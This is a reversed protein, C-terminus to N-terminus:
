PGYVLAPPGVPLIDRRWVFWAHNASPSSTGDFWMIRRTLVIKVTLFDNDGFLHRRSHASDFDVPLLLALSHGMASLGRKIFNVATTGRPGYPPNTIIIDNPVGAGSLFDVTGEQSTYGYDHLDTSKVIAGCRKLADSMQGEGCAPEWVVKDRVDIVNCLAETVWAPTQYLDAPIRDYGSKRQAM